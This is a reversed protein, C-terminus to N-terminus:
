CEEARPISKREEASQRRRSNNTEQKKPIGLFIGREKDFGVWWCPNGNEGVGTIDIKRIKSNGVQRERSM